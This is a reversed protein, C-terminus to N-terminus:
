KEQQTLQLSYNIKKLLTSIISRKWMMGVFLLVQTLEWSNFWNRVMSLFDKQNAAPKTSSTGMFHCDRFNTSNIVLLVKRYLNDKSPRKPDIYHDITKKIWSIPALSLKFEKQSKENLHSIYDYTMINFYDVYRALYEFRQKSLYNAINESFPFMTTIFTLKEKHLEDSLKRAFETFNPFYKDILWVQNCELVIGNFKSYKLRRMLVKIFQETNDPKYLEVFHEASFSQCNFRPVVKLKNNKERIKYLFENDVHDSGEIKINFKGNLTEPKLEFWCPSLFDIKAANTLALDMGEKNWPTIYSLNIKSFEKKDSNSCTQGFEDIIDKVTEQCLVLSGLFLIIVVKKYIM